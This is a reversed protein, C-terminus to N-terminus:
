EVVLADITPGNLCYSQLGSQVDGRALDRACLQWAKCSACVRELDQYTSTHFVKVYAVDLGLQELRRPMLEGPGPHSCQLARLDHASLGIDKMIRRFEGDPCGYLRERLKRHRVVAQLRSGLRSLHLYALSNTM